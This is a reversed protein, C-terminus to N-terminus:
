WVGQMGVHYPLPCRQRLHPGLHHASVPCAPITPWCIKSPSPQRLCLICLPATSLLEGHPRLCPPLLSLVLFHDPRAQRVHRSLCPPSPHAIRLYTSNHNLAEPPSAPWLCSDPAQSNLFPPYLPAASGAKLSPPSTM